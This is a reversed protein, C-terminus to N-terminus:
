EQDTFVVLRNSYSKQTKSWIGECTILNLHSKGDNSSFVDSTDANPDYRRSERVVFSIIMGKDDEIYLKDGKRLQHLNDFVSAKGNKWGYHGAIVASGNEGPRQGHKYWAVDDLSKTIDMFGDPTLGVYEVTSDINIGPIKLRAPLGPKAKEQQTLFILSGTLLKLGSPMPSKPILYPVNMAKNRIAGVSQEVAADDNRVAAKAILPEWSGQFTFHFILALSGVFTTRLLICRLLIKM